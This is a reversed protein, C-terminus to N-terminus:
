GLSRKSKGSIRGKGPMRARPEIARTRPAGRIKSLGPEPSPTGAKEARDSHAYKQKEIDQLVAEGQAGRGATKYQAPNIKNKSSM